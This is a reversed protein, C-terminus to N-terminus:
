RCFNAIVFSIVILKGIGIGLQTCEKSNWPMDCRAWPLVKSFSHFLYYLTWMIIVNYYICCYISVMVMGM